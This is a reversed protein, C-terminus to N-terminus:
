HIIRVSNRGFLTGDPNYLVLTYIGQSLSSVDISNDTIQVQIIRGDTCIIEAKGIEQGENCDISIKNGAPNPYTRFTNVPKVDIDNVWNQFRLNDVICYENTAGGYNFYYLTVLVYAPRPESAFPLPLTVGKFSSQNGSSYWAYDDIYDSASDYLYVKVTLGNVFSTNNNFEKYDFMLSGPKSLLTDYYGIQAGWVQASYVYSGLHVAYNGHTGPSTRFVHDNQILFSDCRWNTPYKKGMSDSWNEFSNNKIVPQALLTAFSGFFLLSFIIHRM